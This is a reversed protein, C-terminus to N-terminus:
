PKPCQKRGVTKPLRYLEGHWVIQPVVHWEPAATVCKDCPIREKLGSFYTEPMSSSIPAKTHTAEALHCGVGAGLYPRLEDWGAGANIRVRKTFKEAHLQCPCQPLTHDQIKNGREKRSDELDSRHNFKFRRRCGVVGPSNEPWATQAAWM